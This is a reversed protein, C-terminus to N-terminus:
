FALEWNSHYVWGKGGLAFPVALYGVPSNFLYLMENNWRMVRNKFPFWNVGIRSDYPTGYKGWITSGGAYVQVTKPVVMQSIQMQFGKDFLNPLGQTDIGSWNTLWRMYYEGELAFGHKKIGGDISTMNYTVQNVTIGPGFLNRTFVISGDSLRIQTNQFDETNPQSQKDARSHTYHAGIRTALKQHDEFDGFGAGFEGTSPMWVWATAITSFKNPLQGANVGLTSLNNGLMFHYRMKDTIQGRAWIGSTYSPRFYEDAILRSDVSLWFPFNGEITRTGPLGNIGGSLTFYKNFQYNLNGAVVVQAGQGQSVNSTWTYLFYRLKPSLVSGMFKIQVKQLQFDQRQQINSTTGFANTYTSALDLQNLYRVYSLIGISMDGYDTEAVKFGLNPTYTGWKKPGEAPAVSIAGTAIAESVPEEKEAGEQTDDPVWVEQEGVQAQQKEAKPAPVGSQAALPRRLSELQEMLARNQEQFQQNQEMLKKNQEVLQDLAKLIDAANQPSAIAKDAGPAATQSQAIWACNVIAALLILNRFYPINRVSGETATRRAGDWRKTKQHIGKM